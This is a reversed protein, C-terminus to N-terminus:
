WTESGLLVFQQAALELQGNADNNFVMISQATTNAALVNAVPVLVALMVALSLISLIRNRKMISRWQALNERVCLFNLLGQPVPVANRYTDVNVTIVGEGRETQM